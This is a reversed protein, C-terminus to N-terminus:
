LRIRQAVLRARGLAEEVSSGIATVHGMKRGERNDTKGYLHVYTHPEHLADPLSEEDLASSGSGLLNVMAAAPVRLGADGLPLGLVARVHNEFQSVWCAEITYHASNHPRPALENIVVQGDRLLFLEVGFAGAGAVAEV